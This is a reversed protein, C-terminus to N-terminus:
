LLLANPDVTGTPDTTTVGGADRLLGSGTVGARYRPRAIDLASAVASRSCRRAWSSSAPRLGSCASATVWPSPGSSTTAPAPDPLVRTRVWRMAWRIESRPMEGNSIRAIVKLLLAASSIFALTAARTPGTAARIHTDDNWLAQTRMRRRSALAM